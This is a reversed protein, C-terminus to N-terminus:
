WHENIIRVRRQIAASQGQLLYGIGLALLLAPEVFSVWPVLFLGFEVVPISWLVMVIAQWVVVILLAWRAFGHLVGARMIVLAAVVGAGVFIVSLVFEVSGVAVLADFSLDNTLLAILQFVVNGAAFVLLSSKGVISRAAIGSEGRVGFALVGFAVLLVVSSTLQPITSSFVLSDSDTLPVGVHFAALVTLLAAVIIGGGGWLTTLHSTTIRAVNV